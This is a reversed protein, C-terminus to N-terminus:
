KDIVMYNASLQDWTMRDNQWELAKDLPVAFVAEEEGMAEVSLDVMVYQIPAQAHAAAITLTSILIQLNEIATSRRTIFNLLIYRQGQDNVNISIAPIPVDLNSVEKLSTKVFKKIQTDTLKTEQSWAGASLLCMLIAAILWSRSHLM